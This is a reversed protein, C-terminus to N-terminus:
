LNVSNKALLEKKRIEAMKKLFTLDKKDPNGIRFTCGCVKDFERGFVIKRRGGGCSGCNGCYDIHKWATEKIENDVPYDEMWSSSMDESWVTWHDEKEDPDKIAIFCVCKDGFKVWYYMKDMWCDCTDRYFTMNSSKLYNIFDLAIEQEEPSLNDRINEYINEM